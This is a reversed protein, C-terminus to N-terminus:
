QKGNRASSTKISASVFDSITCPPPPAHQHRQEYSISGAGQEQRRLRYEEPTERRRQHPHDHAVCGQESIADDLMEMLEDQYKILDPVIKEYVYFHWWLAYMGLYWLVAKKYHELPPQHKPHPLRQKIDVLLQHLSSSDVAQKDAQKGENERKALQMHELISQHIYQRAEEESEITSLMDLVDYPMTLGNREVLASLGAEKDKDCQTAWNRVVSRTVNHSLATNTCVMKPYSLAFPNELYREIHWRIPSWEMEDMAGHHDQHHQYHNFREASLPVQVMDRLLNLRHGIHSLPGSGGGGAVQNVKKAVLPPPPPSFTAIKFVNPDIINHLLQPQLQRIAKLQTHFYSNPDDADYAKKHLQIYDRFPHLARRWARLGGASLRHLTVNEADRFLEMLMMAAFPGKKAADNFNEWEVFPARHRMFKTWQLIIPETLIPNNAFVAAVGAAEDAMRLTKKTTKFQFESSM